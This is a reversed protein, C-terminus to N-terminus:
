VELDKKFSIKNQLYQDILIDGHRRRERKKKKKKIQSNWFRSIV